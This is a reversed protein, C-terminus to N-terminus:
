LQIASLASSCGSQCSTWSAVLSRNYRTRDGAGSSENQTERGLCYLERRLVIGWHKEGLPSREQIRNQRHFEALQDCFNGGVAQRDPM